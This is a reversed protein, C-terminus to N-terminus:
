SRCSTAVRRVSHARMEGDSLTGTAAIRRGVHNPLRLTNTADVLEVKAPRKRLFGSRWSRSAPADVGSVDALRFTEEDLELCGTITVAGAGHLDAQPSSEVAAKLPATASSKGVIPKKAGRERPIGPLAVAAPPAETHASEGRPPAQRATVLAAAVVVCIMALVIVRSSTAWAFKTSAKATVANKSRSRSPKKAEKLRETVKRLSLRQLKRDALLRYQISRKPKKTKKVHVSV